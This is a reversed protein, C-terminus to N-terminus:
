IPQTADVRENMATVVIHLATDDLPPPEEDDEADDDQPSKVIPRCSDYQAAPLEQRSHNIDNNSKNYNSNNNKNHHRRRIHRVKHMRKDYHYSSGRTLVM